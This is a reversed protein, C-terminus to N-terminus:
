GALAAIRTALRDAATAAEAESPAEVMVRVVPETGSPRILVRGSEGLEREVSAVDATILATVDVTRDPVAV